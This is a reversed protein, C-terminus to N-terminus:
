LGEMSVEMAVLSSSRYVLCNIETGIGFQSHRRYMVCKEEQNGPLGSVELSM